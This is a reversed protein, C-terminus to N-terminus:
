NFKNMAKNTGLIVWTKCCDAARELYESLQDKERRSFSNLVHNIVEKKQRPRGIGIRLRVFNCSGLARIISEVGKHGGSSGKPRIRIRGWELDLDDFAVLMNEPGLDHKNLLLNVSHGSLNMFTLPCALIVKKDEIKGKGFCSKTLLDRKLKIGWKKTLIDILLFGINHRSYKYIKGPNGLGVILKM